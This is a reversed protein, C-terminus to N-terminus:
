PGSCPPASRMGAPRADRPARRRIPSILHRNEVAGRSRQEERLEELPQPEGELVHELLLHREVIGVLLAREARAEAALVGKPAIGVALLAADGALEALRDAGREGDGDLRLGAGVAAPARGAVVDIHHLADIAAEALLRARDVGDDLSRVEFERGLAALLQEVVLVTQQRVAIAPLHLDGGIEGGVRGIASVDRRSPSPSAASRRASPPLPGPMITWAMM